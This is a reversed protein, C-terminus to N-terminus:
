QHWIWSTPALNLWLKSIYKANISKIPPHIWYMQGTNPITNYGNFTHNLDHLQEFSYHVPEWCAPKPLSPQFEFRILISERSAGYNLCHNIRQLNLTFVWSSHEISFYIFYVVAFGRILPNIQKTCFVFYEFCDFLVLDFSILKLLSIEFANTKKQM